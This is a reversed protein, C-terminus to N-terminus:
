YVLFDCYVAPKDKIKGTKFYPVLIFLAAKKNLNSATRITDILNPYTFTKFYPTYSKNESYQFSYTDKLEISVAYLDVDYKKALSNLKRLHHGLFYIKKLNQHKEFNKQNAKLIRKEKHTLKKM